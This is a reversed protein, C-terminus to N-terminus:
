VDPNEVWAQPVPADVGPIRANLVAETHSELQARTVPANGDALRQKLVIVREDHIKKQTSTMPPQGESTNGMLRTLEAQDRDTQNSM